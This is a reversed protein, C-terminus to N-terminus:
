FIVNENGLKILLQESNKYFTTEENTSIIVNEEGKFSNFGKYLEVKTLSYVRIELQQFKNIHSKHGLMNM